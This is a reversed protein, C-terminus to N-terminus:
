GGHGSAPLTLLAASAPPLGVTYAGGRAPVSATHVRPLIGTRTHGGFNVGGLTVGGTAYASRALLRELSGAGRGAAAHVVAVSPHSLSDNILLVRIRHDGALTARIRLAGAGPAVIHLVRSGAPAAQAFMDLGYYIPHVNAAWRGHSRTFDFLGNAADPYTHINAGDIGDQALTFMADMVWLAAAFTNSVGIRGNCTVSNMEDVRFTDGVGHALAVYPSIGDVFGRSARASLLNPVSPYQPSAPATVCQNLGYAHWTVMRVRSRPSVLARFGDIWPLLGTVPGAAPGTPLAALARSFDSVFAQPNYGLGRSFVETGVKSYWPIPVGRLKRYWAILPYLEPENGIEFAGLYHRGIGSLLKAGEVADIRPQNAELGVGLILKANSAIALTRATTMWSPTLDYTIGLPQRIGRVPWWSRDTSQGGIRLSPRGHPSLNRILQVLVPNIGKLGAGTVVPIARYEMALGVFDSSIPRSVPGQVSVRVASAEASGTLSGVLAVSLLYSAFAARARPIGSLRPFKDGAAGTPAPNAEATPGPDSDAAPRM